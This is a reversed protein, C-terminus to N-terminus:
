NFTGVSGRGLGPKAGLEFSLEFPTYTPAQASIDSVELQFYHCTQRKLRKHMSYQGSQDLYGTADVQAPTQTSVSSVTSLWTLTEPQWVDEEVWLPSGNYFARFRLTHDGDYQGLVGAQRIMSYGQLLQEARLNGTRFTFDYPVGDDGNGTQETMLRGGASMVRYTSCGAVTPLTWRAWRSGAMYNWLVAQSGCHWVVEMQATDVQVGVPSLTETLPRVPSSINEVKFGHSLLLPGEAGWYIVGLQTLATGFHTTAGAALTLSPTEFEGNGFNDPGDGAVVYIKSPEFVVIGDELQAISTIGGGENDVQLYGAEADFGAGAGATKLLSHQVVGPSVQGGAGWLRDGITALFACGLPASSETVAQVGVAVEHPDEFNVSIATDSLTSTFSVTEATYPAAIVGELFYTSGLNETRYVEIIVDDTSVAPPPSITLVVSQNGTTLITQNTAIAASEFREGQLNYRVARALWHYTGLATLGGGAQQAIGLILPYDAFGADALVQGDWNKVCSGSLYLSKGFEAVSLPPLFNMDGTLVNGERASDNTNFRRTWTRTADNADNPDPLVRALWYNAGAGPTNPTLGVERDASGTVYPHTAGALLFASKSNRSRLWAFVEDGVRFGRSLLDSNYRIHTAIGDLGGGAGGNTIPNTASFSAITVRGNVDGRHVIWGYNGGSDKLARSVVSLGVPSSSSLSMGTTASPVRFGSYALASTFEEFAVSSSVYYTVGVNGNPAVSAAIAGAPTEHLGLATGFAFTNSVSTTGIYQGVKISGGTRWLLLFGTSTTAVDYAQVADTLYEDLTWATGTWFRLHLVNSTADRFLVVPAGASSIVTPEVPTVAGSTIVTTDIVAGSTRDITTVTAVNSLVNVYVRLKPTLCSDVYDGRIASSVNTDVELPLHAPIGRPYQKTLADGAHQDTVRQWFSSSGIAANGNNQPILLRDGTWAVDSSGFRFTAAGHLHIPYHVNETAPSGGGAGGVRHGHGYVWNSPEPDLTGAPFVDGDRLEQGVFGDRRRITQEDLFRANVLDALAPPEGPRRLDMGYSGLRLPVTNWVTREVDSDSPRQGM